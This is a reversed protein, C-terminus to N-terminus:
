SARPSRAPRPTWRPGPGSGSRCWGAPHAPGSPPRFVITATEQQQPYVQLAPPIVEAWDIPQEGVVDLQYSEVITGPNHVEIQVTVQGGPEVTLQSQELRILPDTVDYAGETTM